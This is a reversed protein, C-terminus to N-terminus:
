TGPRLVAWQAIGARVVHQECVFGPLKRLDVLHTHPSTRKQFVGVNEMLRCVWDFRPVPTTAMLRGEPKLVARIAEAYDGHEVVEFAIVVDFSHPEIGLQRWDRIDGVVDAPAVLDIGTIDTFGRERAWRGVWGDGCGLDLIRAGSEVRSFFYELRRQRALESV